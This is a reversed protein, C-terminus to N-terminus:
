NLIQISIHRYIYIYICLLFILFGVVLHTRTFILCFFLNEITVFIETTKCLGRCHTDPQKVSYFTIYFLWFIQSTSFHTKKNLIYM